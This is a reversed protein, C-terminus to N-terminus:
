FVIEWLLTLKFDTTKNIPLFVVRNYMVGDSDANFLGAETLAGNGENFDLEATIVVKKRDDETTTLHVTPDIPGIPKRFLESELATDGAPDVPTAGTGVGVHSIPDIPEAVFQKAVLDRGSLVISNSAQFAEVIEGAANRMQLRLRGKLDMQDAYKM